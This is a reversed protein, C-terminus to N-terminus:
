DGNVLREFIIESEDKYDTWSPVNRPYSSFSPIERNYIIRLAEAGLPNNKLKAKGPDDKPIISWESITKDDVCKSVENFGVLKYEPHFLLVLAAKLRSREDLYDDINERDLKTYPSFYQLFETIYSPLLSVPVTEGDHGRFVPEPWTVMFQKEFGDNIRVASFVGTASRRKGDLDHTALIVKEWNDVEFPIAFPKEIPNKVVLVFNSGDVPYKGYGTAAERHLHQRVANWNDDSIKYVFVEGASKIPKIYPQASIASCIPCDKPKKCRLFVIKTGGSKWDRAELKVKGCNKPEIYM